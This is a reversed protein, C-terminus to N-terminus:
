GFKSVEYNIVRFFVVQRVKDLGEGKFPSPQTLTFRFLWVHEGGGDSGAAQYLNLIAAM